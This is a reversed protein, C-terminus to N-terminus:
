SKSKPLEVALLDLINWYHVLAVISAILLGLTAIHSVEVYLIGKSWFMESLTLKKNDISELLKIMREAQEETM